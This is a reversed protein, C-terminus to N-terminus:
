AQTHEYESYDLKDLMARAPNRLKNFLAGLFLLAAFGTALYFGFKPSGFFDSVAGMALPGLAAGGCTFFLIV